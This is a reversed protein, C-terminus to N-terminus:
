VVEFNSMMGQDAHELRHCHMVYLGRYANFRILADVTEGNQLLVTDKWGAEWPFVAGRGGWRRAVQFSAGHVHVPHAAVGRMGQM